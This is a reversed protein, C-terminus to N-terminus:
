ATRNNVVDPFLKEMFQTVERVAERTKLQETKEEINQPNINGLDRLAPPINKPDIRKTFLKVIDWLSLVQRLRAMTEQLCGGALSSFCWPAAALRFSLFNFTSCLGEKSLPWNNSHVVDLCASQTCKVKCKLSQLLESRSATFTVIPCVSLHLEFPQGFAEKTACGVRVV